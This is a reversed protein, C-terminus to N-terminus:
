TLPPLREDAMPIHPGSGCGGRTTQKGAIISAPLNEHAANLKIVCTVAPANLLPCQTFSRASEYSRQPHLTLRSLDGGRCRRMTMMQPLPPLPVCVSAAPCHVQVLAVDARRARIPKHSGKHSSCFGCSCHRAGAKLDYVRIGFKPGELGIPVQRQERRNMSEKILCVVRVECKLIHSGEPMTGGKAIQGMSGDKSLYMGEMMGTVEDFTQKLHAEDNVRVVGISLLGNIPKLVAQVMAVV